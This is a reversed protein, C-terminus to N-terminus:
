CLTPSGLAGCIQWYKTKDSKKTKSALTKEDPNPCHTAPASKKIAEM